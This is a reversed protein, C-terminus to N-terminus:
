KTVIDLKCIQTNQLRSSDNYNLTQVVNIEKVTITKGALAKMAKDVTPHKRFEEAASGTTIARIPKGSADVKMRPRQKEDLEYVTRAKMFSSPFFKKANGNTLEVWVYEVGETNGVKTTCVKYGDTPFTWTDGVELGQNELSRMQSNFKGAETAIVDGNAQARQQEFSLNAM